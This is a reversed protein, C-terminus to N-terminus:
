AQEHLAIIQEKRAMDNRMEAIDDKTAMHEVVHSLMEGIEELTAEKAM